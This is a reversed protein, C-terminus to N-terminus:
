IQEFVFYDVIGRAANDYESTPDKHFQVVIDSGIQMESKLQSGTCCNPPPNMKMRIEYEFGPKILVPKPLPVCTEGKSQIYVCENYMHIIEMKEESIGSESNFLEAVAIEIPLATTATYINNVWVFLRACRFSKLLLPENTSFTTTEASKIIYPNCSYSYVLMRCCPVVEGWTMYKIPIRPYCKIMEAPFVQSHISYTIERYQDYSFLYAYSELQFFEDLSMSEFRIVQFLDNFSGRVIENTLNNQQTKTKIWNM